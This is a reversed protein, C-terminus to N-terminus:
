EDTQTPLIKPDGIVKVWKVYVWGSKSPDEELVAHYWEGNMSIRDIIMCTDPTLFSVVSYEEGPGSRMRLIGRTCGKIYINTATPAKAPANKTNTQAPIFIESVTSTPIITSSPLILNELLHASNTADVFLKKSENWIASYIWFTIISSVILILILLPSCSRNKKNDVKTSQTKAITKLQPQPVVAPTKSVQDQPPKKESPTPLKDKYLANIKKNFEQDNKQQNPGGSTNGHNAPQGTPPPIPSVRKPEKKTENIIPPKPTPPPEPPASPLPEIKPIIAVSPIESHRQINEFIRKAESEGSLIEIDKPSELIIQPRDNNITSNRDKYITVIGTVCIWKDKYNDLDIGFTNFLDLVESWAVITFDFKKWFSFNVFCYPSGPHPGYQTFGKYIDTVQGIISVKEGELQLINTKDLARLIPYQSYIPKHAAESKKHPLDIPQNSLFQELRPIREIDTHCLLKFQELARSLKPIKRLELLLKSAAPDIFDNQNFILGGGNGFKTWLQPNEILAQLTLHIVISSFRDLKSDFHSSTRGPHQFDKNGLENSKQGKLEPVFMGDYDVLIIKGNNIIINAGSLDGHAVSLRELEQIVRNFEPLLGKINQPNRFNKDIFTGLTEGNVWPMYTIPYWNGQVRIGDTLFKIPIFCDSPNKEIFRSIVHYRNERDSLPKHFCRVAWSKQNNILKFTLAFGGSRVRPLGMNDKEVLCQKLETNSFCINPNQITDQYLTLAPLAPLPHM